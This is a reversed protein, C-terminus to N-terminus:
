PEGGEGQPADALARLAKASDEHTDLIDPYFDGSANITKFQEEHWRAARKLGQARGHAVGETWLGRLCEEIQGAGQSAPLDKIRLALALLLIEIQQDTLM